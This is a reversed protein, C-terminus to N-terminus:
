QCNKGKCPKPPKTNGGGGSLEKEAAACPVVVIDGPLSCFTGDIYRWSDATITSDTWEIVETPCSEDPYDPTVVYVLNSGAVLGLGSGRITITGDVVKANKITGPIHCQLCDRIIDMDWTQVDPNWEILHCSECNYNGNTDVEPYPMVTDEPVPLGPFAHHVDALYENNITEHCHRCDAETIEAYATSIQLTFVAMFALSIVTLLFAGPLNEIGEHIKM